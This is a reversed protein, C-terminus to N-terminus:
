YEVIVSEKLAIAPPNEFPISEPTDVDAADRVTELTSRILYAPTNLIPAIPQIIPAVPQLIAGASQRLVGCSSLGLSLVLIGLLSFTKM